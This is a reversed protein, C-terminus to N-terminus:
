NSQYMWRRRGCQWMGVHRHVECQWDIQHGGVGGGGYVVAAGDFLLGATAACCYAFLDVHLLTSGWSFLSSSVPWEDDPRTVWQQAGEGTWRSVASSRIIYQLIHSM